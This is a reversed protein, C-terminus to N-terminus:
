KAQQRMEAEFRRDDLEKKWLTQFTRGPPAPLDRHKLWGGAMPLWRFRGQPKGWEALLGAM